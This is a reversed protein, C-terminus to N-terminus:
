DKVIQCGVRIGLMRLFGPVKAECRPEPKNKLENLEKELEAVRGHLFQRQVNAESLEIRINELAREVSSLKANAQVLLNELEAIRAKLPLTNDSPPPPPPQDGALWDKPEVALVYAERLEESEHAPQPQRTTGSIMDWIFMKMRKGNVIPGESEPVFAMGDKSPAVLSEHETKWVFRLGHKARITQVAKKMAERRAEDDGTHPFKAVAAVFTAHVDTPLMMREAQPPPPPPLPTHTPELPLASIDSEDLWMLVAKREAFKVMAIALESGRKVFRAFRCDGPELVRRETGRLLICGHEGQGVTIGGLTTYEWIKHTPDAYTEDGTVLRGDEAVYRYGQSGIACDTSWRLVNGADYIIPSVGCSPPQLLTWKFDNWEWVGLGVHSQGAFRFPNSAVRIYLPGMGGAAVEQPPLSINAINTAIHSNPV